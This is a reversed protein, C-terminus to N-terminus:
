CRCIVNGPEESTPHPGPDTCPRGSSPAIASAISGETLLAFGGPTGTCMQTPETIKSEIATPRLRSRPTPVHGYPVGHCGM